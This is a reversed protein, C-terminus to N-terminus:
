IVVIMTNYQMTNIQNCKVSHIIEDFDIDIDIDIDIDADTHCRRQIKNSRIKNKVQLNRM